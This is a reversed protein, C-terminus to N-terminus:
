FSITLQGSTVRKKVNLQSITIGLLRVAREPLTPQNLLDVVTQWILDTDNTYANLTKSRTKIEFDHYKIKLTITRGKRKKNGLREIVIAHIKKLEDLWDQEEILTEVFTNEAGISKRIRNVQVERRDNARVMDYFYAGSKGYDMILKQKTLKLLDEGKFIGAGNMKDATKKGVGHFKEIPLEALFSLAQEPLVASLGDPKELDSATKALFKNFSVGASATLGTKEKIEKRILQAIKIASSIDKKNYSVDLYAEDLSLPEILETYTKFIKMIQRSVEQYRNFRPKVFILNPCRKQAIVSALASHVGYARAEYSAAAVVGGKGSGGVAIAKNRYQPNDYQEVSAYFADMDIHIIKRYDTESQM